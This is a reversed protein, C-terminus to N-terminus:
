FSFMGGGKRVGRAMARKSDVGHESFKIDHSIINFHVFSRVAVYGLLANKTHSKCGGWRREEEGM